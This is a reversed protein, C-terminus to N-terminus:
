PSTLTVMGNNVTFVQDSVLDPVETADTCAVLAQDAEQLATFVAKRGRQDLEGLIDDVLFIVSDHDKHDLLFRAKALKITIAALRCQGESGFSSLAKGNLQFTFDDRHPGAHTVRRTRDREWNAALSQKIAAIRGALDEADGATSPQYKVLLKSGDPLLESATNTLVEKLDHFLQVRYEVLSAGKTALIEDFAQVAALDPSELRLLRNRSRHARDYDQLIGLYDPYLQTLTIDLFRRRESAPGKVLEIDEPIFAVAFFNGIFDSAKRITEGNARLRRREGHEIGLRLHQNGRSVEGYIMFQNQRWSVLERVRSTRFSRLISLFYIAELVNTKGQGNEGVLLSIGPPITLELSEYNRFSTARILTLM